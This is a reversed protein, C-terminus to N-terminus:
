PEVVGSAPRTAECPMQLDLSQPCVHIKGCGSGLLAIASACLAGLIVTTALRVETMGM